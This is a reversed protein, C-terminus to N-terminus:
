SCLLIVCKYNHGKKNLTHMCYIKTHTVIYINCYKNKSHLDTISILIYAFHDIMIFMDLKLM